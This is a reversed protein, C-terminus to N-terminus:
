KQKLQEQKRLYIKERNVKIDQPATIGLKFNGLEKTKFPTIIIKKNGNLIIVLNSEFEVTKIEM